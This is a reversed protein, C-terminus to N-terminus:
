KRKRGAEMTAAVVKAPIDNAVELISSHRSSSPQGSQDTSISFQGPEVQGSEVEFISSAAVVDYGNCCVLYAQYSGAALPWTQYGSKDAGSAEFSLTGEPFAAACSQSGCTYLWMESGAPVTGSDGARAPYIAIWDLDSPSGNSFTLDITDGPNHVANGISIDNAVSRVMRLSLLFGVRAIQGLFSPRKNM